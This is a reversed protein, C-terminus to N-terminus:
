PKIGYMWPFVFGSCFKSVIIVFVKIYGRFVTYLLSAKFGAFVNFLVTFYWLLVYCFRSCSAAFLICRWLGVRCPGLCIWFLSHLCRRFIAFFLFWLRWRRRLIGVRGLLRVLYSVYGELSLGRLRAGEVLLVFLDDDVLIRRCVSM